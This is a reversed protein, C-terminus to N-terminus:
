EWANQYNGEAMKPVSTYKAVYIHGMESKKYTYLQFGVTNAHCPFKGMEYVIM